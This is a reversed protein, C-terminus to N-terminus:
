RLRNAQQAGATAALVHISTIIAVLVVGARQSNTMDSEM